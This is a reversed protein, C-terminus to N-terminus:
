KGCGEGELGAAWAIAGELEGVQLPGQYTSAAHSLASYFCPGAGRLAELHRSLRRVMRIDKWVMKPSYTREELTALVKVGSSRPGKDFSYWEDVRSWNEPLGRTAPDNRDEVHVTARQFQPSLPHGKFQAGGAGHIGM